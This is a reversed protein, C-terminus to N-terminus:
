LLVFVLNTNYSLKKNIKYYIRIKANAGTIKLTGVPKEWAAFV